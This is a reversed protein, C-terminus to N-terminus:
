IDTFYKKIIFVLEHMKIPKSIYDTCGAQLAKERDGTQAYATQAIIVVKKNFERILKTAEYGDMEPMKIDMLILDLEPSNRCAEVAEIGTRCIIIRSSFSRVMSSILQESFNDDEAILIKLNGPNNNTSTEKETDMNSKEKAVPFYPIKFYFTSGEQPTSEMWIEGAMMEVFSKSISLGLGAGEYNRSLSDTGQRFRDFIFEKQEQSIGVGTDMVYFELSGDKRSCGFEISGKNTFKIANKILNILIANVKEKDTKILAEDAILRCNSTFKLGKSNVEPKFFAYLYDSQEKIDCISTNLLMQGSEIKSIDILDNIINLMRAGSKEIISVYEQQETGTLAPNKLLESFGMIGNMPTRIEHGMNALFASKLRDSEEAKQRAKIIAKEAEKRVTIDQVVTLCYMKGMISVLRMSILDTGHQSPFTKDIELNDVFGESYILRTLKEQDEPNKLMGLENATKGLIYNPDHGMLIAMRKNALTIKGSPMESIITPLPSEDFLVRFNEESERLANEANKAETIDISTGVLGIIKMDKDRLPVKTTLLIRMIGDSSVTPQEKDIIPIGELVKLEEARFAAAIEPQYYDMDTKGIMEKPSSAGMYNACAANVIQFRSECDKIFIFAPLLNVLTMLLTREGALAEENRKRDTIDRGVGLVGIIKEKKVHPSSLIECHLYEGSKKQVRLELEQSIKGSVVESLRQTALQIDDPHLLGMFPKGVWEHLQWGTISEFAKNLSVIIGDASLLFIVDRTQEILETHRNKIELLDEETESNNHDYTATKDPDKFTSRFTNFEARLETLERILQEKSKKSDDM